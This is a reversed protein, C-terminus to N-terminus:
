KRENVKRLVEVIPNKVDPKEDLLGLDRYFNDNSYNPPLIKKKQKLHWDIQGRVYGEKLPPENLKNWGRIKENIYEGSFGTSRLFTLLVFLGRKRGDKLGKLLKKIPKPFMDETAGKIDTESYGKYSKKQVYEEEKEETKKWSLAATLIKKGEGEKCGPIFDIINIRLPDADKAPDFKEIENKGIVVSALATKEHLSYPMRFLHRPAVLVLDLGALKNGSIGEVFGEGRGGERAYDTFTAKYRGSTETKKINSISCHECYYHEEEKILDLFGACNENICKLKRKTIKVDKRKITTGCDSCEFEATKGKKCPRGCEPCAVETINEKSLNTREKLAEFNIEMGSIIKNYEQRIAMTLFECIARPWEPFMDKTKKGYHEEPFAKGPVIIHFGKSGSFKIWYCKIGFEELVKIMLGAAIKSYDLYKSDIDIVLDWSKRIENLEEIGMNSDIKLPDEWIEESAHFSTAGKKALGIIDSPYTLADPRKGFAEFYKPVIERGSAFKLLAEQVKKQSYYLQTIKRIREEKEEM